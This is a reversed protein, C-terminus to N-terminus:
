TRKLIEMGALTPNPTFLLLFFMSQIAKCFPWFVLCCLQCLDGQKLFDNIRLQTEIVQVPQGRNSSNVRAGQPSFARFLRSTQINVLSTVRLPATRGPGQTGEARRVLKEVVVRTGRGARASWWRDHHRYHHHRHHPHHQNNPRNYQPHNDSSRSFPSPLTSSWRASAREHVRWRECRKCERRM